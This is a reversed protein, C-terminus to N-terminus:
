PFSRNGPGARRCRRTTAPRAIFSLTSRSPSAGKGDVGGREHQRAIHTPYASRPMAMPVEGLDFRVRGGAISHRELDPTYDERRAARVGDRTGQRSPVLEDRRRERRRRRDAPAPRTAANYRVWASLRPKALLHMTATTVVPPAVANLRACTTRALKITTSTLTANQEVFVRSLAEIPRARRRGREDDRARARVRRRFFGFM